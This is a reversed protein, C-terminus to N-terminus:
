EGKNWEKLKERYTETDIWFSERVTQGLNSFEGKTVDLNETPVIKDIDIGADERTVLTLSVADQAMRLADNLDKGQTLVNLEPVEVLIYINDNEEVTTFLGYFNCKM